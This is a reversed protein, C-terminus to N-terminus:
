DLQRTGNRDRLYLLGHPDIWLYTTPALKWYRWGAHTKLRHHHRCLPALNCKPCTAGGKDFPRIHDCDSHRAARNCHPHVCRRDALEVIKKDLASPVYDKTAHRTHHDCDIHAPCDACGGDTGGCHRVPMVRLAIDHRGVWDRIVQELHAKHDVDTLVPDHQFVNAESLHLMAALERRQAPKTETHGALVAQARAPDALIGLAVSRREDLSLHQYDPLDKIAEAVATLADDFPAADALDAAADIQVIGTHNISAPDLTVHRKDLAELQDLEREEAHLRLMAEDILRDLVVPGIAAGTAIRQLVQATVHRCVDDHQGILAQAVKRAQWVTVRGTTLADWVGPARHVLILADRILAKGAATSMSNAAAFAAPADWRVSPLGHWELPEPDLAAYSATVTWLPLSAPAWAEQGPLVPNAYAWEVALEMVRAESANAARREERVQVLLDRGLPASDPLRDATSTM